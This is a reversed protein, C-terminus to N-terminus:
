SSRRFGAGVHCGRDRRDADGPCRGGPWMARSRASIGAQAPPRTRRGNLHEHRAAVRQTRDPLVRRRREALRGRPQDGPLAPAADRAAAASRSWDGAEGPLVPVLQAMELLARRRARRNPAALWLLCVWDWGDLVWDARNAAAVVAEPDKFWRKLLGIADAPLARTASCSAGATAAPPRCRGPLPGASGGIDNEADARLWGVAVGRAQGPPCAAARHPRGHRGRRYWGSRVGQGDGGSCGGAGRGIPGDDARAPAPDRQRPTRCGAAREGPPRNPGSPHVQAILGLMLRFHANLRHAADRAISRQAAAAADRGAHGDCHWTWRPTACRRRTSGPSSSVRASCCPTTCTRIASAAFAAGTSSTSAADAPLTPSSWNSGTRAERIRTGILM